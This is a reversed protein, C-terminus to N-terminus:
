EDQEQEMDLEKLRQLDARLRKADAQNRLLEALAARWARAEAAHRSDPYKALLLGFAVNATGWDHLPSDPDVYLRGLGHLAEAAAPTGRYTRLVRRYVTRAEQPSRNRALEDARALLAAADPPAAEQPRPPLIRACGAILVAAALVLARRM